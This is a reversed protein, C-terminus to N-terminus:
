LDELSAFPVDESDPAGVPSSLPPAYRTAVHVAQKMQEVVTAHRFRWVRMPSALPRFHKKGAIVENNKTM